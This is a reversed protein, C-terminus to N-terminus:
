VFVQVYVNVAANNMTDVFNFCDFKGETIFPYVFHLRGM